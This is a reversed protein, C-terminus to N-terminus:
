ITGNCTRSGCLCQPMVADRDADDISRYELLLEHGPKIDKTAVILVLREREAGMHLCVEFANVNSREACAGNIRSVWGGSMANIRLQSYLAFGYDEVRPEQLVAKEYERRTLLRGFYVGVFSGAAIHKLAIIGRGRQQIDLYRKYHKYCVAAVRRIREPVGPLYLLAQAHEVLLSSVPLCADSALFHHVDEVTGQAAAALNAIVPYTAGFVNDIIDVCASCDRGALLAEGWSWAHERVLPENEPGSDVVLRCGQSLSVEVSVGGDAAVLAQQRSAAESIEMKEMWPTLALRHWRHPSRVPVWVPM